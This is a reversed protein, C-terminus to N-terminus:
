KGEGATAKALLARAERIARCTSCTADHCEADHGEWARVMLTEVMAVLEPFLDAWRKMEAQEAAAKIGAEREAKWRAHWANKREVYRAKILSPAHQKCYRKGDEVVTGRRTCQRDALGWRFTTKQCREEALIPKM